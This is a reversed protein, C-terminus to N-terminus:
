DNLFKNHVLFKQIASSNKIFQNQERTYERAHKVGIDLNELAEYVYTMTIVNYM